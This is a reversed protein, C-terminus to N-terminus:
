VASESRWRVVAVWPEASETEEEQRRGLSPACPEERQCRQLRQSHGDLRCLQAHLEGLTATTSSTAGPFRDDGAATETPAPRLHLQRAETSLTTSSDAIQRYPQGRRPTMLQGSGSESVRLLRQAPGAANRATGPMAPYIPRLTGGLAVSACSDTANTRGTTCFTLADMLSVTNKRALREGREAERNAARAPQLM